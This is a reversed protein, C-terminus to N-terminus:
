DSTQRQERRKLDIVFEYGARLVCYSMGPWGDLFGGRLFYLHCFILLPRFPLRYSLAKWAQRRLVPDANLLHGAHLDAAGEQSVIAAEMTSYQNHRDIWHSLGRAFPFHLLHGDLRGVQGNTVYQENVAREVKVHGIRMLRGFWTPYGSSHRLWTGMFFDKRRMRFLTVEPAADAVRRLMESWIAEDVREDADLMLLWSNRYTVETLAAQRQAAYNDFRKQVVRAGAAAAITCTADASFSDFVVVDDCRGHLSTLAEPLNREENLTLIVVSISMAAVM